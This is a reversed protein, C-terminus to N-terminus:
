KEAIPLSAIMRIQNESEDFSVLKKTRPCIVLGPKYNMKYNVKPCTIVMEGLQYYKLSPLYNQKLFRMYEFERIATLVGLSLFNCDPDYLCYCSVFTEKLIDIVSVAVIKGDIRHYMHWTGFGPFVGEDKFERFTEDVKQCDILAPSQAMLFDREPVYVPSNCLFRKLNDAERDKGHVAKEYRVYVQYLEDTYM